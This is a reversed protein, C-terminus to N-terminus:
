ACIIVHDVAGLQEVNGTHGSSTPITDQFALLGPVHDLNAWHMQLTDPLDM